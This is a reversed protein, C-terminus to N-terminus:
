ITNKFRLSIAIVDASLGNVYLKPEQNADPQVKPQEYRQKGPSRSRSGSKSKSRSNSSRAM